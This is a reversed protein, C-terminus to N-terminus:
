FHKPAPPEGNEKVRPVQWPHLLVDGTHSQATPATNDSVCTGQRPIEWTQTSCGPTPAAAISMWRDSRGDGALPLSLADRLMQSHKQHEAEGREPSRGLGHATWWSEVKGAHPTKGWPLRPM